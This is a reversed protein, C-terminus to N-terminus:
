CRKNRELSGFSATAGEKFFVIRRVWVVTRQSWVCSIILVKGFIVAQYSISVPDVITNSSTDGIHCCISIVNRLHSLDQTLSWGESRVTSQESVSMKWVCTYRPPLKEREPPVDALVGINCWDDVADIFLPKTHCVDRPNRFGARYAIM